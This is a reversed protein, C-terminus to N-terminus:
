LCRWASIPLFDLLHQAVGEPQINEIQLTDTNMFHYSQDYHIDCLYLMFLGPDLCLCLYFYLYHRLIIISTHILCCKLSTQLKIRSFNLLVSASNFFLTAQQFLTYKVPIIEFSQTPSRSICYASQLPRKSIYIDPCGYIVCPYTPLPTQEFNHM